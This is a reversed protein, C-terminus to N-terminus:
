KQGERQGNVLAHIRLIQESISLQQQKHQETSILGRALADEFMSTRAPEQVPSLRLCEFAQDASLPTHMALYRAFAERHKAHECTLIRSIRQRESERSPVDAATTIAPDEAAARTPQPNEGSSSKRKFPNRM